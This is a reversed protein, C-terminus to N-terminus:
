RTAHFHKKRKHKVSNHVKNGVGDLPVSLLDIQSSSQVSLVDNVAIYILASSSIFAVCFLM